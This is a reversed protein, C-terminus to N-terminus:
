KYATFRLIATSITTKTQLEDIYSLCYCMKIASKGIFTFLDIVTFLMNLESTNDM